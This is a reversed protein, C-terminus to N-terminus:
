EFIGPVRQSSVLFGQAGVEELFKVLVSFHYAQGM